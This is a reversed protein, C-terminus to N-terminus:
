SMRYDGENLIKITPDTITLDVTAITVLVSKTNNDQGLLNIQLSDNNCLFM